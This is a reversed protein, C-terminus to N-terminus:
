GPEMGPKRLLVIMMVTYQSNEQRKRIADGPARVSKRDRNMIDSFLFTAM